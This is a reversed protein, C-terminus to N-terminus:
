GELPYIFLPTYPGVFTSEINYTFYEDADEAEIGETELKAIIKSADYVLREGCSSVGIVCDDYGNVRMFPVRRKDALDDIRQTADSM